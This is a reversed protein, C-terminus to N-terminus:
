KESYKKAIDELERWSYNDAGGRGENKKLKEIYKGFEKRNIKYKRAVDDIQKNAQTNTGMKDGSKSKKSGIGGGKQSNAEYLDIGLNGLEVISQALDVSGTLAVGGGYAATGGGVIVGVGATEAGTALAVSGGTSAIEGGKLIMAIDAIARGAYYSILYEKTMGKPPETLNFLDGLGLSFASAVAHSAGLGAASSHTILKEAKQKIAFYNQKGNPDIYLIPNQYTYGYTNLNMPNFVGGNHQGDIYHEHEFTPNYGSLPDTNLWLSTKMDLYRAGFYTLNTEQDLEKSNFLYPMTHETNHEDFLIEGFAIYETHQSVKGDQGTIYSSSGLHDPHYFFINKERIGNPIFGFGGQATEPKIPEGFQVPPGPVDGPPNFKPPRPWGEPPEQNQITDVM